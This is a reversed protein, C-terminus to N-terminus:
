SFLQFLDVQTGKPRCAFCLTPHETRMAIPQGCKQCTTLDGKLLPRPKKKLLDIAPSVPSTSVAEEPCALRCIDCAQGLCLRSQLLLGFQDENQVFALAGTPCFRACLGCASCRSPDIALDVIPLDLALQHDAKPKPTDIEEGSSQINDLVALIYM